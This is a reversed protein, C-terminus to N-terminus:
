TLFCIVRVGAGDGTIEKSFSHAVSVRNRYRQLEWTQFGVKLSCSFVSIGPSPAMLEPSRVSDRLTVVAPGSSTHVVTVGAGGHCPIIPLM